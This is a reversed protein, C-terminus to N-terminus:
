PRPGGRLLARFRDPNERAARMYASIDYRGQRIGPEVYCSDGDAQSIHRVVYSLMCLYQSDDHGRTGGVTSARWIVGNERM